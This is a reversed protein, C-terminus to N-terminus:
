DIVNENLEEFFAKFTQYDKDTSISYNFLVVITTESEPYYFAYSSFGDVGGTHGYANGRDFKFYELGYGNKIHTQNEPLDFWNQMQSLSGASIIEGKMLNTTFVGLDQANIIIGGDGTSMEDGYLFRSEVFNSNGYLDYYGKVADDPIANEKVDYHASNLGLPNFIKERYVEKLSKESVAELIMGLLVYNTNSYGYQEDIKFEAKKGYTFALIDEQDWNNNEKNFRAM